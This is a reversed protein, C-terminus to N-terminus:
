QKDIPRLHASPAMWVYRLEPIVVGPFVEPLHREVGIGGEREYFRRAPLNREFVWLFLSHTPRAVRARTLMDRLLRAGIGRGTLGPAVHLNDLLVGWREDGDLFACCFGHLVGDAAAKVVIQDARPHTLRQRWV